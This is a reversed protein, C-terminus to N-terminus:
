RGIAKEFGTVQGLDNVYGIIHFLTWLVDSLVWLREGSPLQVLRRVGLKTMRITRSLRRGNNRVLYVYPKIQRTKMSTDKLIRPNDSPGPWVMHDFLISPTQHNHRSIRVSMPM